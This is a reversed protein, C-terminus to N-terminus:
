SQSHGNALLLLCVYTDIKDLGFAEQKISLLRHRMFFTATATSEGVPAKKISFSAGTFFSCSCDFSSQDVLRAAGAHRSGYRNDPWHVLRKLTDSVHFHSESLFQPWIQFPTPSPLSEQSNVMKALDTRSSSRKSLMNERTKAILFVRFVTWSHFCSIM